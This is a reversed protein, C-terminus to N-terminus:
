EDRSQDTMEGIARPPEVNVERPDVWDAWGAARVQIWGGIPYFPIHEWITTQTDIRGAWTNADDSM